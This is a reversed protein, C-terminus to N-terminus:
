RSCVWPKHNIPKNYGTSLGFSSRAGKVGLGRIRFGSVM